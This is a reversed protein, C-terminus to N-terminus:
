VVKVKFLPQGYELPSQNEVLIEVIEGDVDSTIENMLKMAEVICLVDGKNIREGVKVYPPSDPGPSSYFTGLIPSVIIHVSEDKLNIEKENEVRDESTKEIKEINGTNRVSVKDLGKRILVRFDSGDLQFEAISSSDILKVLEKIDKLDM